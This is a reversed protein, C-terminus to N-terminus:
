VNARTVAVRPTSRSPSHVGASPLLLPIGARDSTIQGSQQLSHSALLATGKGHTTWDVDSGGKRHQTEDVASWGHGAANSGPWGHM